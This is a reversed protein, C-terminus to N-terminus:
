LALHAQLADCQIEKSRPADPVLAIFNKWDSRKALELLFADRLMQAPLSGPWAALFRDVEERKLQPLRRQLSALELYPFLPYNELGDALKQWADGPAHRASELVLPFRERQSALKTADSGDAGAATTALAVGFFCIACRFLSISMPARCVDTRALKGSGGAASRQQPM